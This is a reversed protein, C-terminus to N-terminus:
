KKGLVAQAVALKAIPVGFPSCTLFNLDAGIAFGVNAPDSAHDGCIGIELDPRTLKGYHVTATILEKVPLSLIQFPNDKLIDYQTYSPLFTNIDDASMGTTTQTLMNIDISFFDSQKSIHGAMLAAAPLEIVAGVRYSFPLEDAGNAKLIDSEASQIGPITTSEINRGHRIFRMEADAMVAPVLLDFDTKGGQAHFSNAARLIGAAQCYYLDPYSIAVRSGRLGMMPNINRLQNARSKFDEASIEPYKRNLESYVAEQEEPAHPLFDMLPSEMLQLIIKKGDLMKFIELTDTELKLSVEQLAAARKEPNGVLLAEQFHKLTEPRKLLADCQFRGIGEAGLRLATGIEALSDAMGMINLPGTIDKIANVFEELGNQSTDPSVLDAEGIWVTPDTYTPVEMSITDLENIRQGDCTIYGDHFEFKENVLCPKRLSRSVVPAHSAYGGVGAICANGLEIAEVDEADTHPMVLILDSNVGMLTSKRYEELLTKTSFAVRGVAAGPSGALGGVIKPMDKTTEHNIIPHLLDQLQGPPVSTVLKEKSVLEKGHLDLLTRIEAQTSKADVSNQEVLWFRSEEIVFKIDRIDLFKEELQAAVSKLKELHEAKIQHIDQGSGPDTDFENHVFNGNLRPEGTVIDRSCISGAYSNEGFNGYVMMQALLGAEIGENMPDSLYQEAFAGLVLRLQEYGNQPFDPVVKERFIRCIEKHSANPNAEAIDKFEDPKKGLFQTGIRELFHRYEQYAFDTGCYSGFGEVTEDNIGVTHVSSITGIQISPSVVVKFLMPREPSNFSKGTIGEIKKVAGELAELTLKEKLGKQVDSSAILFGPAIPLKLQALEIMNRGRLGFREQLDGGEVFENENFHVLQAM